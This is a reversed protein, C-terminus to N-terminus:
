EGLPKQANAVQQDLSHRVDPPPIPVADGNAPDGGAGPGRVSPAGPDFGQPPPNQEFYEELKARRQDEPLNQLSEFFARDANARDEVSKRQQDAMKQLAGEIRQRMGPDPDPLSNAGARGAPSVVAGLPRRFTHSPRRGQWFRVVIIVLLAGLVITLKHKRLFTGITAPSQTMSSIVTAM